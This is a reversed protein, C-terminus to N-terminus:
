NNGDNWDEFHSYLFKHCNTLRSESILTLIFISILKDCSFNVRNLRSFIYEYQPFKIGNIYIFLRKSSLYNINKTTSLIQKGHTTITPHM